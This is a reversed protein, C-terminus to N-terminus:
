GDRMSRRLSTQKSSSDPRSCPCMRSNGTHPWALNRSCDSSLSDVNDFNGYEEPSACELEEGLRLIVIVALIMDNMVASEDNLLPILATLCKQYYRGAALM